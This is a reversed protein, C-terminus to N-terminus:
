GRSSELSCMRRRQALAQGVIKSGRRSMERSTATEQPGSEKTGQLRAREGEM